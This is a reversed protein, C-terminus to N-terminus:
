GSLLHWSVCAGRESIFIDPRVTTQFRCASQLQQVRNDPLTAQLLPGVLRGHWRTGGFQMSHYPLTRLLPEYLASYLSNGQEALEPVSDGAPRRPQHGSQRVYASCECGALAHSQYSQRRTIWPKIKQNTYSPFEAMLLTHALM